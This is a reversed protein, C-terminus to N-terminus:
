DHSLSDLTAKGAKGARESSTQQKWSVEGEKGYREGLMDHQVRKAQCMLIYHKGETVECEELINVVNKGCHEQALGCFLWDPPICATVRESTFPKISQLGNEYLNHM